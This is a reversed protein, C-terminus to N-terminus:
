NKVAVNDPNDAKKMAEILQDFLGAKLKGLFIYKDDNGLNRWEKDVSILDNIQKRDYPVSLINGIKKKNYKGWDVVPVKKDQDFWMIDKLWDNEDGGTVPKYKFKRGNLDLEVPKDEVFDNEYAM